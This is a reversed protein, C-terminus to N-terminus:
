FTCRTELNFKRPTTSFKFAAIKPKSIKFERNTEYSGPGPVSEKTNWLVTGKRRGQPITFCTQRTMTRDKGLDQKYSNPAPEDEIGKKTFTFKGRKTFTHSSSRPYVTNDNGFSSDISYHAPSPWKIRPNFDAKQLWVYNHTFWEKGWATREGGTRDSQTKPRLTYSPFSTMHPLDNPPDYSFITPGSLEPNIPPRSDLCYKLGPLPPSTKNNLVKKLAISPNRKNVTVTAIKLTKPRLKNKLYPPGHTRQQLVHESLDPSCVNGNALM